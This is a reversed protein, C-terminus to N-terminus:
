KGCLSCARQKADQAQQMGTLIRSANHPRGKIKCKTPDRVTFNIIPAQSSEGTMNTEIFRTVNEHFLSPSTAKEIEFIRKWWEKIENGTAEYPDRRCIVKKM